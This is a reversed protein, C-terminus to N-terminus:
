SQGGTLYALLVSILVNLNHYQDGYDQLLILRGKAYHYVKWEFIGMVLESCLLPLDQFHFSQPFVWVTEYFIESFHFYLCIDM